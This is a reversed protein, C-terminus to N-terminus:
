GSLRVRVVGPETSEVRDWTVVRSARSFRRNMWALLAPRDTGARPWWRPGVVLGDIRVSRWRGGEVEEAVAHIDRVVGLVRDNGDRVEARLLESAWM